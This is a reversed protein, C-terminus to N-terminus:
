PLNGRPVCMLIGGNLASNWKKNVSDFWEAAEAAKQCEARDNFRGVHIANEPSTASMVIFVLSYLM